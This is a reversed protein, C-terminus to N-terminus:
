SYEHLAYIHDHGVKGCVELSRTTALSVKRLVDTNPLRHNRLQDRIGHRGAKFDGHGDLAGRVAGDGGSRPDVGLSRGSAPGSGGESTPERTMRDNHGCAPGAGVFRPQARHRVQARGHRRRHLRQDLAGVAAVVRGGLRDVGAPAPAAALARDRALDAAQEVPRDGVHDGELVGRPPIRDGADERPPEVRGGAVVGADDLM